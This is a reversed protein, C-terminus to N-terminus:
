AATPMTTEQVQVYVIRSLLEPRDAALDALATHIPMVDTVLAMMNSHQDLRRIAHTMSGAGLSYIWKPRQEGPSWQLDPMNM